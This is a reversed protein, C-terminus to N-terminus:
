GLEDLLIHEDGEWAVIWLPHEVEGSEDWVFVAKVGEYELDHIAAAIAPGDTSGAAEIGTLAIRAADYGLAELDTPPRGEQATFAEVFDEGVGPSAADPHWASAMVMGQVTDAGAIARFGASGTFGVWGLLPVDWGAERIQRAAAGASPPPAALVVADPDEGMITSIPGSFDTATIPLLEPDSVLEGGAADLGEELGEVAATGAIESWGIFGFTEYGLEEVAYEGLAAYANQVTPYTRFVFESGIDTVAEAGANYAVMPVEDRTATEAVAAAASSSVPGLLATADDETILRQAAPGAVAPDAMTDVEILEVEAGLVGGAANAEDVAFQSGRVNEEGVSGAAGSLPALAGLVIPGELTVDEAPAADGGSAPEPEDASDDGGSSCAGVVLAFAAFLGVLGLWGADRKRM